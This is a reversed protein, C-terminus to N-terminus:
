VGLSELVCIGSWIAGLDDVFLGGYGLVVLASPLFFRRLAIVELVKLGWDVFSDFEM